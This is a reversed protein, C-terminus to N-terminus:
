VRSTRQRAATLERHVLQERVLYSQCTSLDVSYSVASVGTNLAAPTLRPFGETVLYCRRNTLRYREHDYQPRHVDLWGAHLLREELLVQQEALAPEARAADVLEGLTVGSTSTQVSQHVLVLEALGTGDLQHENSIRCRDSDRHGVTKVEVAVDNLHYDKPAGTPGVWMQVAVDAAAPLILERLVLLEGLLGLRGEASLGTALGTALMRQWARIRRVVASAPNAPSAVLHHVLDAVLTCFMPGDVAPEALVEVVGARARCRIGVAVLLDADDDPEPTRVTLARVQEPFHVEVNIDLATLEPCLRRRATVTQRTPSAQMETFLLAVEDPSPTTTV